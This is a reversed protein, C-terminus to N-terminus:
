CRVFTIVAVLPVLLAAFAPWGDRASFFQRRDRRPL